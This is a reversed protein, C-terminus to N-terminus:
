RGAEEEPIPTGLATRQRGGRTAPDGGYGLASWDMRGGPGHCDACQLADDAPKVMHSLPWYMETRAFDFSGSYDLGSSATGNRIARDWDFHTWYGRAGFTQPTLFHLHETDYPQRGRHMKFPWIRADPDRADGLPRNMATVADPDIPDGTLYRESSGNYWAYEPMADTEYVFSGKMKSYRHPDADASDVGATSWDWHMKTAARPAMKPIHCTQCAVAKTHANVREDAHPTATHCDTCDVRQTTSVSVSMSRGPIVHDTTRHCDVCQLDHRGMHVDITPTPFMMTGDLDGHKVANGGGGNFHCQGCNTRTPRGVSKAAALLDVSPDPRGAGASAKVYQGSHDHCVLCDIREAQTFDFDDDDWGYGIHCSTCRPWNGAISICFNNLLNKKGIAVAGEPREVVDGAWTWHSTHLIDEAAEAHCALCARTVDPGTAFAEDFFTAHDVPASRAPLHAHPDDRPPGDSKQWQVLGVVLGLVVVTVFGLVLSPHPRM